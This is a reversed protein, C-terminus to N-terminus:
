PLQTWAQRTNAMNIRRLAKEIRDLRSQPSFRQVSRRLTAGTSTVGLRDDAIWVFHTAILRNGATEVEGHELPWRRDGDAIEAVALLHERLTRNTVKDDRQTGLAVAMFLIAETRTWTASVVSMIGVRVKL